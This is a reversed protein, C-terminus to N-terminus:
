KILFVTSDVTGSVVSKWKARTSSMFAGGVQAQIKLLFAGRVSEQDQWAIFLSRYQKIPSYNLPAILKDIRWYLDLNTASGFNRVAKLDPSLGWESVGRQLYECSYDGQVAISVSDIAEFGRNSVLSRFGGIDSCFLRDKTKLKELSGVLVFGSGYYFTKDHEAFYETVPSGGEGRFGSTRIAQLGGRRCLWNLQDTVSERPFMPDTQFIKCIEDDSIIKPTNEARATVASDVSELPVAITSPVSKVKARTVPARVTKCSSLFSAWFITYLILRV